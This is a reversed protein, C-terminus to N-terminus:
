IRREGSSMLRALAAIVLVVAIAGVSWPDSDKGGLDEDWFHAVAHFVGGTAAGMLVALVADRQWVLAFLLAAGIAIQFAGM